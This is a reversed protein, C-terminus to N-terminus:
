LDLKPMLFDFVEQAIAQTIIRSTGLKDNLVTAFMTTSNWHGQAYKWAQTLFWDNDLDSDIDAGIDDILAPIIEEYFEQEDEVRKLELTNGRYRKIDALSGIQHGLVEDKRQNHGLKGVLIV